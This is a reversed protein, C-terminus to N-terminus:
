KLRVTLIEMKNDSPRVNHSNMAASTGGAVRSVSILKRVKDCQAKGRAGVLQRRSKLLRAFM